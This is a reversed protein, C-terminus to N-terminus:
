LKIRSLKEVISKNAVVEQGKRRSQSAASQKINLIKGMATMSEGLYANGLYVLVNKAERVVKTRSNLIDKKSVNYYRELRELLNDMSTFVRKENEETEVLSLVKDVFSGSGLIREDYGQREEKGIKMVNAMGGASRVLGGGTLDEESNLGEKLYEVYAAKAENEKGGFYGLVEERSLLGEEQKEMLEKHGTWPYQALKDFRVIKVKVPNLHIYRILPLLYEDSDCLISKYRNQFLYGRRKRTKNYYIAYGTLLSRMFESLPTKGTQILLHLHNSMICWAYIQFNRESLCQKLRRSFEQKDSVEKFINFGDIGRSIVHHLAGPYDLRAQRPM